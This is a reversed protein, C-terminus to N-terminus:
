EGFANDVEPDRILGQEKTTKRKSASKPQDRKGLKAPKQL